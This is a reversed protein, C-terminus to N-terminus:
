TRTKDCTRVVGGCGGTGGVGVPPGGPQQPGRRVGPDLMLTKEIASRAGSRDGKGHLYRGLNNHARAWGPVADVAERASTVAGDWDGPPM